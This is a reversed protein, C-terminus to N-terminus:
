NLAGSVGPLLKQLTGKDFAGPLLASLKLLAARHGSSLTKLTKEVSQVAKLMAKELLPAGEVLMALNPAEKAEEVLMSGDEVASAIIELM